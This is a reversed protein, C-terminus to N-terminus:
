QPEPQQRPAAAAEEPGPIGDPSLYARQVLAMNTLIADAQEQTLGHQASGQLREMDKLLGKKYSAVCKRWRKEKRLYRQRVATDMDDFSATNNGATITAAANPDQAMPAASDDSVFVDPKVCTNEPLQYDLAQQVSMPSAAFTAGALLLPLSSIPRLKM